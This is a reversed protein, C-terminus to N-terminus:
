YREIAKKRLIEYEEQTIKGSEKLQELEELEELIQKPRLAPTAEQTLPKLVVHVTEPILRYQAGSTADVGWGIVGGAVINGAVAGAIVHKIEVEQIEYGPKQIRLIHDYKRKLEIECPTPYATRQGVIICTAGPPESSVPIRQTTGHIVTACGYGSLLLPILLGFMLFRM